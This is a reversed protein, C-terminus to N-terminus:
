DESLVRKAEEQDEATWPRPGCILFEDTAITQRLFDWLADLGAFGRREGTGADQVWARWSSSPSERWLRLLYAHYNADAALRPQRNQSM